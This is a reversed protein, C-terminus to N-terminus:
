APVVLSQHHRGHCLPCLWRVDLKRSYDDHHGHPKCRKGCKSCHDPRVLKGARIAYKVANKAVHKEPNAKKWRRHIERNKEPNAKTWRRRIERDKEPNEAYRRNRDQALCTKCQSRRGFKGDANKHFGELPKTEGCKTCTKESPPKVSVHEAGVIFNEPKM